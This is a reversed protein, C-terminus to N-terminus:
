EGMAKALQRDIKKFKISVIRYIIVAILAIGFLIGSGAQPYAEEITAAFIHASPLVVLLLVLSTYTFKQRKM